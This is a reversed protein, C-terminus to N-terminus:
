TLRRKSSRGDTDDARPAYTKLFQFRGTDLIFKALMPYGQTTNLLAPLSYTNVKVKKEKVLTQFKGRQRKFHACHLLFHAPTEPVNCYDCRGTPHHNFRRLYDNLPSHGSRLHFIAAAEGKELQALADAVKRPQTRLKRKGTSFNATQLHFLDRTKQLLISLSTPTLVPSGQIGAAEKAREDAEENLDIGEHGPTWYLRVPVDILGAIFTKISRALHQMATPTLPEHTRRLAVQSDSFVALARHRRNGDPDLQYDKFKAIALGIALLELENNTIGKPSCSLSRSAFKSVAASGGGEEGLSGDTFVVLAGNAEEEAVQHPVRDKAELRDLDLNMLEGVTAEWPPSPFPHIIECRDIHLPEFDELRVMNSIPSKHSISKNALEHKMLQKTPHDDPATMRKHFYMHHLRAAAIAFPTLNTDHAMLDTPSTKFAGLIMRNADAHLTHFLKLVKSLNATTFWVVSGYLVRSRLVATILHKAERPGLGSYAKNLRRLQAVTRQGVEKVKRLHVNFLLKPDLWYGM